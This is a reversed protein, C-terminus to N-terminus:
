RSILDEPNIVTNAESYGLKLDQFEERGMNFVFAHEEARGFVEARAKLLVYSDTQELIQYRLSSAARKFDVDETWRELPIEQCPNRSLAYSSQTKSEPLSM